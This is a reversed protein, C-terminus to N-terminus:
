FQAAHDDQAQPYYKSMGSVDLLSYQFEQFKEEIYDSSPLALSNLLNLITKLCEHMKVQPDVNAESSWGIVRPLYVDKFSKALFQLLSSMHCHAEGPDRKLGETNM